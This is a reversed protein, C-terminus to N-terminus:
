KYLGLVNFQIGGSDEHLSMIHRRKEQFFGKQQLRAQGDELVQWNAAARGIMQNYRNFHVRGFITEDNLLGVHRM